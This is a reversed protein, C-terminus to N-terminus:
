GGKKKCKRKKKSKKHAKRTNENEAFPVGKSGAKIAKRGEAMARLTDKDNLEEQIDVATAGLTRKSAALENSLMNLISKCQVRMKDKIPLTRVFSRERQIEIEIEIIQRVAFDNPTAEIDIGKDGLEKKYKGWRAVAYDKEEKSFCKLNFNTYKKM